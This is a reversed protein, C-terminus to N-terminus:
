WRIISPLALNRTTSVIAFYPNQEPRCAEVECQYSALSCIQRGPFRM